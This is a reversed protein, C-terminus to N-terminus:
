PQSLISQLWLIETGIDEPRMVTRAVEQELMTRFQGRIRFLLQRAAVEKLGHKEGFARYSPAEPLGRLLLEIDDFMSGKGKATFAQRLVNLVGGVLGEARARLYAQEPDTPASSHLSRYREEAVAELQLPANGGGRKKARRHRNESSILRRLCGLFFSRLRGRERKAAQLMDEQIVETFLTQTMDEADPPPFGSSRLYSYIPFWYAECLTELAQQGM